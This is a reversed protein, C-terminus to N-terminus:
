FPQFFISRPIDPDLDGIFGSYVIVPFRKIDVIARIIENGETKGDSLKLDLIAGDYSKESLAKLADELSEVIDPVIKIPSKKNFSDIVDGYSTIQAPDNEVILIKSKTNMISM